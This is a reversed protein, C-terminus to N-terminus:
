GVLEICTLLSCCDGRREGVRVGVRVRVEGRRGVEEANETRRAAVTAAPGRGPVRTETATALVRDSAESAKQPPRGGNGHGRCRQSGAESHAVKRSVKHTEAETEAGGQHRRKSSAATARRPVTLARNGEQPFGM